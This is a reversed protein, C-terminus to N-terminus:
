GAVHDAEQGIGLERELEAIRTAMWRATPKRNAILYALGPFVLVPWVLAAMSAAYVESAGIAGDGRWHVIINACSGSGGWRDPVRCHCTRQTEAFLRAIKAAVALWGAMYAAALIYFM